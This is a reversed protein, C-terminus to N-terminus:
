LCNEDELEIIGELKLRINIVNWSVGYKEGIKKSIPRLTAENHLDNVSLGYKEIETIAADFDENLDNVPVLVRGAFENAQIELRKIEKTPLNQQFTIWDDESLFKINEFIKKHLIYHGIEHAISFRLRKHLHDLNFEDNDVFISKRDASLLADTNTESLLDHKPILKLKLDFEAITDIEIPIIKKPNYKKRFKEVERRIDDNSLYPPRFNNPHIKIM